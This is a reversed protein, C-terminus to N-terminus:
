SLAKIETGLKTMTPQFQKKFADINRNVFLSDTENDSPLGDGGMNVIKGAKLLLNRVIKIIEPDEIRSLLIAARNHRPQYNRELEPPLGSVDTVKEVYSAIEVFVDQLEILTNKQFNKVAIKNQYDFNKKAQHQTASYSIFGGIIVGFLPMGGTKLLEIFWHIQPTSQPLLGIFVEHTFV